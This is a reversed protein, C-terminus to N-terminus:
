FLNSNSRKKTLFFWYFIQCSWSKKSHSVYFLISIVKHKTIEAGAGDLFEFSPMNPDKKKLAVVIDYNQGVSGQIVAYEHKKDGHPFSQNAHMVIKTSPNNVKPIPQTHVGIADIYWGAKGHFGIIKFDSKPM